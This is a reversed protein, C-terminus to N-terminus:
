HQYKAFTRTLDTTEFVHIGLFRFFRIVPTRKYRLLYAEEGVLLRGRKNNALEPRRFNM